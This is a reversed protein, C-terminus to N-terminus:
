TQRKECFDDTIVNSRIEVYFMEILNTIIKVGDEAGINLGPALTGAIERAPNRLGVLITKLIAHIEKGLVGM